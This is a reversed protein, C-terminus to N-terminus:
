GADNIDIPQRAVPRTLGIHGPRVPCQRRPVALFALRADHGRSLRFYFLQVRSGGVRPLAARVPKGGRAARRCRPTSRWARVGLSRVGLRRVGPLNGSGIGREFLGSPFGPPWPSLSELFPRPFPRRPLCSGSRLNCLESLGSGACAAEMAANCGASAGLDSTILAGFHLGLDGQRRWGRELDGRRGGTRIAANGAM